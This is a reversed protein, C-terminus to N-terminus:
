ADLRGAAMDRAIEAALDRREEDRSKPTSRPAREPRLDSGLAKAPKNKAAPPVPETKPAAKVGAAPAVLGLEDLDKELEAVVDEYDPVEGTEVLLREAVRKIENRARGPSRELMATVRPTEGNAAKAAGEIWEATRQASDRQQLQELLAENQQEMRALRDDYERDRASRATKGKLRPDSQGKPSAEYIERAADEFEDDKYGLAKLAGPLDYRAREVAKRVATQEARSQEREREFARREEVIAKREEALAAKARKEERQVRSIRRDLDKDPKKDEAKQEAEAAKADAADDDEAEEAPEADPETPEEAPPDPEKAAPKEPAAAPAEPEAGDLGALESALSAQLSARAASRTADRSEAPPPPPGGGDVVRVAAGEQAM